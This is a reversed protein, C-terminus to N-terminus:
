GNGAGFREVMLGHRLGRDSVALSDRGLGTMAARVICAGALIVTERGAQLGTISRREEASRTRYLEIQRDIEVLDLATGRVADADYEALGLKVAALNTLAGGIGIMTDPPTRGHIRELGSAADDLAQEVTARSVADDLGHREAIRVAGVDVSFRETVDGGHGFTFQSSGGGTEFVVISGDATGLASTVGLYSLRSEEEGSIVEVDVGARERAADVFWQRNGAMRLGATGVAAIGAAGARRAEDAMAAVAALTRESPAPQLEGSDALGEGLRTVDSRDLVDRWAGDREHEGVYLKVSNTGIDITGYRIGLGAPGRLWRPYSVNPRGELGAERLISLVAEPDESEVAFTRTSQGDARVDTVEVRCGRIQGQRRRKGVHVAAMGDSPEVLERVLQDLDYADRALAPAPMGLAAWVARIEEAALPFSAKMVPRWRELGDRDVEELDKVDMLAARVKVTDEGAVSVLYLEESEKAPALSLGDLGEGAAADDGFTRWEWRPVVAPEAGM